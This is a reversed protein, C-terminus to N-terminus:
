GSVVTAALRGIWGWPSKTIAVSVIYSFTVLAAVFAALRSRLTRGRRLAVIGLVIYVILAVIKAVLWGYPTAPPLQAALALASLLLVTDVVHPLVRVLRHDLWRAALVMGGGRLVFLTLSLTVAGVHVSRLLAYDLIM